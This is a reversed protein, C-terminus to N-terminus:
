YRMERDEDLHEKMETLVAAPGINWIGYSYKMANEVVMRIEFWIPRGGKQESEIWDGIKQKAEDLGLDSVTTRLPVDTDSVVNKLLFMIDQNDMDAANEIFRSLL